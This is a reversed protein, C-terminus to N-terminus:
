SAPAEQAFLSLLVRIWGVIFSGRWPAVGFPSLDPPILHKAVQGCQKNALM